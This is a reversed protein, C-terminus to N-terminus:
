VPMAAPPARPPLTLESVSAFLTVYSASIYGFSAPQFVQTTSGVSNAAAPAPTLWAARTPARVARSVALDVDLVQPAGGHSYIQLSILTLCPRFCLLALVLVLNPM